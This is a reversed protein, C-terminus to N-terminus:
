LVQELVHGCVILVSQFQHSCKINIIKNKVKNEELCVNQLTRKTVDFKGGIGNYFFKLIM